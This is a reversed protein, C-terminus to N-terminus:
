NELYLNNPRSEKPPNKHRQPYVQAYGILTLHEYEYECGNTNRYKRRTMSSSSVITTEINVTRSIIPQKATTNWSTCETYPIKKWACNVHKSEEVM